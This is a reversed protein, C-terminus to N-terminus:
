LSSLYRKVDRRCHPKAASTALARGFSLGDIAVSDIRERLAGM